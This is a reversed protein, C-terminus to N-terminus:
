NTSALDGSKLKEVAEFLATKRHKKLWTALAWTPTDQLSGYPASIGSSAGGGAAM